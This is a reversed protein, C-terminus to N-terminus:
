SGAEAPREVRRQPTLGDDVAAADEVAPTFGAQQAALELLAAFDLGGLGADILDDLRAAVEATLPLPTDLAAAADLGLTVDKRLLHGTFSPEYARSVLAPTKYRTFVSGMVSGNVFGLYDARAIGAKEALVTTEALAQTVIALLLNHCIKVLRARAGEGVYTVSAALEALVPVVEDFAAQPGSVVMGLRGAAVVKPSGSVPANLLATGLEAAAEGVQASVEQSITSSDVVIRPVPGSGSLLGDKGLMVTAFVESTSVISCVVDCGALDRPREVLLAGRELLPVAKDRTRNYVALPYGADLLRSALQLGMRGTGIWGIRGPEM